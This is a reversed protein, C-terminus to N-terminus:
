NMLSGVLYIVGCAVIMVGIAIAVKGDFIPDNHYEGTIENDFNTHKKM